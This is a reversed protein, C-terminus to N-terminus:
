KKSFVVTDGIMFKHRKDKLKIYMAAEGYGAVDPNSDKIIYINYESESSEHISTVILPYDKPSRTRAFTCSQMILMGLILIFLNKYIKKM